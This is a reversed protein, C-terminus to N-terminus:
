VKNTGILAAIQELRVRDETFEHTTNKKYESWKDKLVCNEFKIPTTDPKKFKSGLYENAKYKQKLM